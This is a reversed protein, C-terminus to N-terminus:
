TINALISVFHTTSKGKVSFIRVDVLYTQLMQKIVKAAKIKLMSQAIRGCGYAFKCTYM